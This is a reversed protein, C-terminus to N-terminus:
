ICLRSLTAKDVGHVISAIEKGVMGKMEATMVSENRISARTMCIRDISALKCNDSELRGGSTGLLM